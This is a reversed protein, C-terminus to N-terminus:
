VEMLVSKLMQKYILVDPLSTFYLFSLDTGSCSNVFNFFIVQKHLM